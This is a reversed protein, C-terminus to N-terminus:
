FDEFVSNLVTKKIYFLRKFKYKHTTFEFKTIKNDFVPLLHQYSLKRAHLNSNNNFDTKKFNRIVYIIISNCNLCARYLNFGTHKM